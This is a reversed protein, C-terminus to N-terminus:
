HWGSSSPPLRTPPFHGRTKIIKRLQSNINKIANTTYIVKRVAPPFAFFPIVRDWANRWAASVTPFRQGWPGDAFADLEAQAAEAIPATYILRIVAALGRRDKWSAYDLSNRILHVICTQLTTAPFVAALAEPMGKLGDTVAILIDHVGRMKLDNFVKMRFKAGETNEISLGLIERTDDPLVGLALCVAKNRVVAADFFVAPYMPELPWAQWATVEAMVEDTVSSIFDPSAETGYQELLFGQIERVTMSRAYMVIKDGFDELARPECVELV